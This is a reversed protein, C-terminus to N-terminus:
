WTRRFLCFRIKTHFVKDFGCTLPEVNQELSLITDLCLVCTKLITAFGKFFLSLSFIVLICIKYVKLHFQFWHFLIILFRHFSM